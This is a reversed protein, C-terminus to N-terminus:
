RDVSELRSAPRSHKVYYRGLVGDIQMLSTKYTNQDMFTQLFLIDGEDVEVVLEYPSWRPVKIRHYGPLVYFYCYTGSSLTDIKAAEDEGDLLVDKKLSFFWPTTDIVYILGTGMMVDAPISFEKIENVMDARMPVCGDLAPMCLLMLMWGAARKIAIM